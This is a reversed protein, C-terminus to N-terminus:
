DAAQTNWAMPQHIRVNRLVPLAVLIPLLYM